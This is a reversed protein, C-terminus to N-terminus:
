RSERPMLSGILGRDLAGQWIVEIHQEGPEARYVHPGAALLMPQHLPLGDLLGRAWRGDAIV